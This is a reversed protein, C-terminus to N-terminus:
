SCARRELLVEALILDDPTTIKINEYSGHILKVAIGLREVLSSDDTGYFSVKLAEHHAKKILQLDFAQPTQVHWLGDRPPTGTIFGDSDTRKITDKVPIGPVVAGSRRVEDALASILEPSVFPRAGDHILVHRIDDSVAELGRLVSDQRERGGTVVTVPKTIGYVPIIEQLYYEKEGSGCVIIIEAVLPAEQFVRLTHVIIPIDRLLLFQKNRDRKMRKGQGAAPIVAAFKDM